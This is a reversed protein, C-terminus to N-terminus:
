INKLIQSQIGIGCKKIARLIEEKTANELSSLDLDEGILLNPSKSIDNGLADCYGQSTAFSTHAGQKAVALIDGGTIEYVASIGCKKLSHNTVNRDSLGTEQALTKVCRLATSDSIPFIKEDGHQKQLEMIRNFLSEKIAKEDKKQGKGIVTIVNVGNRFSFDDKTLTILSDLRFSTVVATEILVAITSWKHRFENHKYGKEHLDNAMKMMGCAEEWNIYATTETDHESLKDVEFADLDVDLKDIKLRAFMKRIASIKRNVTKGKFGLTKNLYTQYEEIDSLTFDQLDSLILHELEKGRTLKFFQRLDTEYAERTNESDVARRDLFKTIKQFVTNNNLQIVNEHKMNLLTSM